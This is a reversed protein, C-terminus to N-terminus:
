SKRLKINKNKDLRFVHLFFTDYSLYIHSWLLFLRGVGGGVGVGVKRTVLPTQCFLTWTGSTQYMIISRLISM